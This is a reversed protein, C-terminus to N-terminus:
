EGIVDSMDLEATVDAEGAPAERKRRQSCFFCLERSDTVGAVFVFALGCGRCQCPNTSDVGRPEWSGTM